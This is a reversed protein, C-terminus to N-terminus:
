TEDERAPRVTITVTEGDRRSKSYYLWPGRQGAPIGEARALLGLAEALNAASAINEAM